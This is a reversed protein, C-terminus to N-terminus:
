HISRLVYSGVADIYVRTTTGFTVTYDYRYARIYGGARGTNPDTSVFDTPAPSTTRGTPDIYFITNSTKRLLRQGASVAVGAPAVSNSVQLYPPEAATYVAVVNLLQTTTADVQLVDNVQLSGTHLVPLDVITPNPDEPDSYPVVM